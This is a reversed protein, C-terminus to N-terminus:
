ASTEPPAVKMEWQHIELSRAGQAVYPDSQALAMAEELSDAVYIVLGGASDSFRGRAFIKGERERAVLFEMHAPRLRQNKEPDAMKLFAAFFAM